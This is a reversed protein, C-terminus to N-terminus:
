AFGQTVRYSLFPLTRLVRLVYHSCSLAKRNASHAMRNVFWSFPGSVTGVGTPKFGLDFFCIKAPKPNSAKAAMPVSLKGDVTIRFSRMSVRPFDVETNNLITHMDTMGAIISGADIRVV